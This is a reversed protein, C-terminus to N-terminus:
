IKTKLNTLKREEKIGSTTKLKEATKETITAKGPDRPGEKYKLGLKNIYYRALRGGQKESIPFEEAIDANAYGTGTLGKKSFQKM